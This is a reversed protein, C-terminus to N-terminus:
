DEPQKGYPFNFRKSLRYFGEEGVEIEQNVSLWQLTYTRYERPRNGNDFCSITTLTPVHVGNIESLSQTLMKTVINQKVKALVPHEQHTEFIVPWYGRKQDVILEEDQEWNHYHILGEKSWDIKGTPRDGAHDREGLSRLVDELPVYSLGFECFSFGLTLPDFFRPKFDRKKAVVLGVNQTAAFVRGNSKGEIQWTKAVGPITRAIRSAQVYHGEARSYEFYYENTSADSIDTLRGDVEFQKTEKIEVQYSVISERHIAVREALEKMNKPIATEAEEKAATQAICTNCIHTTCVFLCMCLRLLVPVQRKNMTSSEKPTNRDASRGCERISISDFRLRVRASKAVLNIFWFQASELKEAEKVTPAM